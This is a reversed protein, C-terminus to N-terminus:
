RQVQAALILSRHAERERIFLENEWNELRRNEIDANASAVTYMARETGLARVRRAAEDVSLIEEM